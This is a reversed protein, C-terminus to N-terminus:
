ALEFDRIIKKSVQRRSKCYKPRSLGWGMTNTNGYLQRLEYADRTGPGAFPRGEYWSGTYYSLGQHADYVALEGNVRELFLEFWDEGVKAFYRGDREVFAKEPAVYRPRKWKQVKLIGSQDVYFRLHKYSYSWVHKGDATFVGDRTKECNLEVMWQVHERLHRGTTSSSDIGECIESWVKDWPRGVNKELYRRLPSILDTFEKAGYGYKRKRGLDRRIPAADPDSYDINKDLNRPRGYGSARPRETLIKQFFPKM